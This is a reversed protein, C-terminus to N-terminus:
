SPKEETKNKLMITGALFTKRNKELNSIFDTLVENAADGLPKGLEENRLVALHSLTTLLSPLLASLGLRLEEENQATSVVREFTEIFAKRSQEYFSTM